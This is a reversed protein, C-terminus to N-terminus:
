LPRAGLDLDLDVLMAVERRDGDGRRRAPALEILQRQLGDLARQRLPAAATRNAQSAPTTAVGGSSPLAWPSGRLWPMAAPMRMWKSSVVPFASGSMGNTRRTTVRTRMM